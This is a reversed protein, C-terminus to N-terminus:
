VMDTKEDVFGLFDIRPEGKQSFMTDFHASFWTGVPVSCTTKVTIIRIARIHLDDVMGWDVLPFFQAADVLSRQQQM